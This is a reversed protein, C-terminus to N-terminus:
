DGVLTEVAHLADRATIFLTHGTPGGFCLNAGAKPLVVRAILRGDALFVQAGEGSSSWLRGDRDCRIGDPGGNDLTAFIRGSGLDGDPRIPFVRIHRPRGSDAIYLLSQDPSFCLGNPQVFDRAVAVVKRTLPDFRYVHNGSVEAARGELGYDPDTFWITGDDRVVIDNPSNFRKGDVQTILPLVSGDRLTLSVKRGAHECSLLRGQLDLTNGNIKESPERFVSLGDTPDWQLLRNAPIDSFILFGGTGGYWVPGESFGLGDVLTEIAADPAFLVAFAVEDEAVLEGAPLRAGTLALTALAAVFRQPVGCSSIRL